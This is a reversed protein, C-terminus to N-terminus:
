ARRRRAEFRAALWDEAAARGAEQLRELLHPQPTLRSARGLGDLAAGPEIFALRHRLLRRRARKGVAAGVGAMARAQEIAALERALPQGFALWSLRAKIQPATAPVTTAIRPELLVILTEDADAEDILPWLPPNASFGGDWYSRGAIRVPPMLQPLCCSALVVKISTEQRRFIRAAGTEVDTAAIYLKVPAERRVRRFDVRSRLIERLPNVALPNIQAPSFLRTMLDFAVLGPSGDALGMVPAANGIARWIDALRQRAGARGGVALGDALAVANLAGASAGSIADISVRPEELLRDLVGWTFAGHAGGGQLALNLPVPETATRRAALRDHSRDFLLSRM